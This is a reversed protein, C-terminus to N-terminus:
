PLEISDAFSANGYIFYVNSDAAIFFDPIGDGDLDKGAAVDRGIYHWTRNGYFKTIDSSAALVKNNTNYNAKGYVLYAAGAKGWIGIKHYRSGILFDDYGDGNVDGVGSLVEGSKDGAAEGQWKTIGNGTILSYENVPYTSKGYVAYTAGANSGNQDDGYNGILFDALGDGNIDGAASVPISVWASSTLKYKKTRTLPKLNHVKRYFKSRGLVLFVAGLGDNPAGILFDAFGDGNVDGAGAVDKGAKDNIDNGIFEIIDIRRRQKQTIEALTLQRLQYTNMRYRPRGLILFARGPGDIASSGAHPDQPMGILFDDYGDSNVDGANAVSYGAHEEPSQGLFLKIKDSPSAATNNLETINPGGIILYAAGSEDGNANEYPAGTILDDIGDGNADLRKLGSCFRGRFYRGYITVSADSTGHSSGTLTSGGVVLGNACYPNNPDGSVSAVYPTCQATNISLFISLVGETHTGYCTPDIPNGPTCPLDPADAYPNCVAFDKTGNGDFDGIVASLKSTSGGGTLILRQHAIQQAYGQSAFTLIVSFLIALVVFFFRRTRQM